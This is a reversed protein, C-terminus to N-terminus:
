EFFKKIEDTYEGTKLHTYLPPLFKIGPKGNKSGEILMINADSDM